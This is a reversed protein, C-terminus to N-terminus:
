WSMRLTGWAFDVMFDGIAYNHKMTGAGSFSTRLRLTTVADPQVPQKGKHHYYHLTRLKHFWAYREWAHHNTHFAM